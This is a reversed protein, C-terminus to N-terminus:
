VFGFPLINSMAKIAFNDNFKINPRVRLYPANYPM